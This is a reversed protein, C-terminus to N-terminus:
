FISSVPFIRQITMKNNDIGTIVMGKKTSTIFDPRFMKPDTFTMIANTGGPLEKVMKDQEWVLKGGNGNVKINAGLEPAPELPPPGGKNGNNMDGTIKYWAFEMDKGSFNYIIQTYKKMKNQYEQVDREYQPSSHYDYYPNTPDSSYGGPSPTYPNEPYVPKGESCKLPIKSGTSGSDMIEIDPTFMTGVPSDLSAMVCELTNNVEGPTIKTIIFTVNCNDNEINAPLNILSHTSNNINVSSNNNLVTTQRTGKNLLSLKNGSVNVLIFDNSEGFSQKKKLVSYVILIVLIVIVGLKMSQSGLSKVGLSLISLVLLVSFLPVLSKLSDTSGSSGSYYDGSLLSFIDDDNTQVANGSVEFSM